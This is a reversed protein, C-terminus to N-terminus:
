PQLFLDLQTLRDFFPMPVIECTPPPTDLSPIWLPQTTQLALQETTQDQYALFYKFLYGLECQHVTARRVHRTNRSLVRVSHTEEFKHAQYFHTAFFMDYHLWPEFLMRMRCSTQMLASAVDKDLHPGLENVLELIDFFRTCALEM